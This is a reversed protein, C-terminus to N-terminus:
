TTQSEYIRRERQSQDRASIVRWRHNRLTFSLFVKRERNTVGLAYYRSEKQSHEEDRYILLPKNFFVEECEQYDVRHKLWNKQRNAADWDFGEVKSFDLESERM